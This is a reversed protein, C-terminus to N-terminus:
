GNLHMYEFAILPNFRLVVDMCGNELSHGGGKFEKTEAIFCILLTNSDFRQQM